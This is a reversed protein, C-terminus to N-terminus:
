PSQTRLVILVTMVVFVGWLIGWHRIRPWWVRRQSEKAYESSYFANTTALRAERSDRVSATLGRGCFMDVRQLHSRVLESPSADPVNKVSIRESQAEEGGAFDRTFVMGGQEFPTFCYISAPSSDPHLIISAYAKSTESVLSFERYVPGWLPTHEAKLGILSFGLAKFARLLEELAPDERSFIGDLSGDDFSSRMHTPWIFLVLMPLIKLTDLLLVTGLIALLLWALTELMSVECFHRRVPRRM